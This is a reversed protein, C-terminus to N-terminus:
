VYPRVQLVDFVCFVYYIYSATSSVPNPMVEAANCPKVSENDAYMYLYKINGM